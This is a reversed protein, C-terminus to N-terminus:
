FGDVMTKSLRGKRNEKKRGVSDNSSGIYISTPAPDDVSVPPANRHGYYGGFSLPQEEIGAAQRSLSTGACTAVAPPILERPRCGWETRLLLGSRGM